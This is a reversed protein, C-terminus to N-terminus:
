CDDALEEFFGEGLVRRVEHGAVGVVARARADPGVEDGAPDDRREVAEQLVLPVLLPQRLRPLLEQAVQQLERALHLGLPRIEPALLGPHDIKNNRRPSHTTGESGTQDTRLPASVHM